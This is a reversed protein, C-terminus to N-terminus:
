QGPFEQFRIVKEAAHKFRVTLADGVLNVGSVPCDAAEASPYLVYLVTTKGTVTKRFIATPIPKIGGYGASPDPLWGQVVPKKQGKVIRVGDAGYAIITLNPGANQTTVRLGDVTADPANLHFLAECNHAKADRSELEDAVIFLDPKLFFV